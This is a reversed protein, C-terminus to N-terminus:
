HHDCKQELWKCADEALIDYLMKTDQGFIDKGMIEAIKHEALLNRANTSDDINEGYILKRNCKRTADEATPKWGTKFHGSLQEHEKGTMRGFYQMCIDGIRHASRGTVVVGIENWKELNEQREKKIKQITNHLDIEASEASIKIFKKLSPLMLQNLGTFNTDKTEMFKYMRTLFVEIESLLDTLDKENLMEHQLLIAFEPVYNLLDGVVKFLEERKEANNNLTCFYLAMYLHSFEKLRHFLESRFEQIEGCLVSNDYLKINGGSVVLVLGRASEKDALQKYQDRFLQQNSTELIKKATHPDM